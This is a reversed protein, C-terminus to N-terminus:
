FPRMFNEVDERAQIRAAAAAASATPRKAQERDPDDLGETTRMMM